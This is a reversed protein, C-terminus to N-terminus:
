RAVGASDPVPSASPPHHFSSPEVGLLSAFAREYAAGTHTACFREMVRAYGNEALTRRLDPDGLVRRLAAALAEPDEPEVLIGNVGHEIIEPIGGVASAVVPAKCALAELIAIGFPEMRSPLVFVECGHLLRVIDAAGRTGLFRTRGAIGLSSALRELDARLPGDGALVLGLSPDGALLPRAARLLVDIGKYEQLEAVCLLYREPEPVTRETDAPRFVGPDVGNHVFLTKDAFHPFATVLKDRYAKSPLVIADSARLLIRTSLPYAPKPRERHFADRGHISTVLRLSLLRKCLAFYVFHGIPYHVNVVDIRSTRLLWLLQALNSVFLVPFLVARLAAHAPGRGFRMGLRLRVGPFGLKTARRTLRLSTGPHFFLITHGRAQLYRALNNVVSVVGGREHDWPVVLLVNMKPPPGPRERTM